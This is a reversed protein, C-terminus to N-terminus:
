AAQPVPSPEPAVRGLVDASIEAALADISRQGDLRRVNFRECETRYLEAQRTLIPLEWKDVKRALAREPPVDLFYSCLPRPSLRQILWIQFDINGLDGYWTHLRVATDLAYRDFIVVDAAGWHRLFSRWHSFVNALTVISSWTLRALRSRRVLRKGPDLEAPEGASDGGGSSGPTILGLLRKGVSKIYGISPNIAVPVWEIAAGLGERELAQRLLQTQSSKGAGDLGSFTV